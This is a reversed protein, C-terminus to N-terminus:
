VAVVVRGVDGGRILEFAEGISGLPVQHTIAPSLDLVSLCRVARGFTAGPLPSGNIDFERYHIWNLPDILLPADSESEGLVVFTAATKHAENTTDIAQRITDGSGVADFVVEAWEGDTEDRVVTSLDESAPDVVRDAGLQAAIERRRASPESVIVRSIGSVQALALLALGVPGAGIIVARSGSRVKALEIASLARATPEALTACELLVADPLAYVAREHALAYEGWGSSSTIPDTCLHIKGDRCQVCRACHVVPNVAVRDGVKCITVAQGVDAVLGAYQGGGGDRTAAPRSGQWRLYDARSIGCFAVKVLVEHPGTSPLDPVDALRVDHKGDLIAVKM